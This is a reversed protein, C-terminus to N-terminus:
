RVSRANGTSIRSPFLAGPFVSLKEPEDGLWSLAARSAFPLHWTGTVMYFHRVVDRVLAKPHDSDEVDGSLPAM